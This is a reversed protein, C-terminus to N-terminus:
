TEQPLSLKLWCSDNTLPLLVQGDSLQLDFQREDPGHHVELMAALSEFGGDPTIKNAWVKLEQAQKITPHLIAHRPESPLVVKGTVTQQHRQGGPGEIRVDVTGPRGSRTVYLAPKTDKQELEIVLRSGFSGRYIMALTLGLTILGIALASLRRIPEQWIVLGHLFISALFLTYITAVLLPHGLFRYVIDPNYESKRRSAVLLLIPFIGAILPATIIGLFGLLKAFSEKGTFLLVEALLCIALVPITSLIFRGRKNLLASWVRQVLPHFRVQPLEPDNQPSRESDPQLAQWIEESLQGGRKPALRTSYCTEGARDIQRVFGKDLLTKLIAQVQQPKQGTHAILDDLSVERQRMMWNVIQRLDDPLTLIDAMALGTPDWEGKYTLILSTHVRLRVSERGAELIELSLQIGRQHLDPLWDLQDIPRSRLPLNQERRHTKDEWQVDLRIRAQDRDLGLYTLGILPGGSAQGRQHGLLTGRRRPLVATLHYQSPLRKQTLGSIALSKYISKMGLSLVAFATGLVHVIPGIRAALPALATGSQSDLVTADISGNVALVWVCYLGITGLQAAVTGWILSRMSPDRQLVVRAGNNVSGHGAYALLIVGFILRWTSPDITETELFPTRTLHSLQVYPLAVLSLVLILGINTLGVLLASAVTASFSRRRVYYLSVLLLAVAWIEAPISTADALVTSFGVYHILLGLVLRTVIISTYALFGDRGLYDGVMRGFFHRRYRVTGSRASAEAYSVITLVNVLGLLILLGIGVLPGVKAAAIPLALIAAGVTRTLTLAFAIWFPPLAELWEALAKSAWRLRDQWRIRSAFISAVPQRYLRQYAQQVAPDDLGLAARINPVAQYTFTYKDGLTHAIAARLRANSPVLHTWRPAYRELDQITPRLPPERGLAFAEMFALDREAATEQTLFEETAQRSQAVMHATRNEILYLLTRARKAPLGALIEDRSLFDSM